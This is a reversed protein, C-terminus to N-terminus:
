FQWALTAGIEQANPCVVKPLNYLYRQPAAYIRWGALHAAWRWAFELRNVEWQNDFIRGLIVPEFSEGWGASPFDHRRFCREPDFTLSIYCRRDAFLLAYVFCEHSELCGMNGRGAMETDESREPKLPQCAHILGIWMDALTSM